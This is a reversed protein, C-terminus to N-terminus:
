PHGDRPNLSETYYHKRRVWKFGEHKSIAAIEIPGGVTSSGPMFRSWQISVHALFEALDIADQFPMSDIVLPGGVETLLLQQASQVQEDTLKLHPKLVDFLGMSFGNVVRHIAEPQGYWTLGPTVGANIPTPGTCVGQQDITIRYEEATEAGTSYGGVLFGLPPRKGEALKEFAPAYKEDFFFQKFRDAVERVTYQEPNLSWQHATDGVTLLRRFDKALTSISSVGINGAGWTIAGIPSGKRLNFVKNANNYVNAIQSEGKDNVFSLTSASDAALVLGDNVKISIGITV